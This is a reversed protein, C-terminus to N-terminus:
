AYAIRRCMEIFYTQDFHNKMLNVDKHVWQVNGLIYGRKSDIRDISADQKIAIPLGSLACIGKQKEWQDQLEVITLSCELNRIQACQRMVYFTHGPIDKFGTWRSNRNGRRTRCRRCATSKGSMVNDKHVDSENGCICRCHWLAKHGRATGAHSLVTWHGITRDQYSVGNNTPLVIKM